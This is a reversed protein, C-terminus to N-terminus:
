LVYNKKLVSENLDAFGVGLARQDLTTSVDSLEREVHADGVGAIVSVTARRIRCEVTPQTTRNINKKVIRPCEEGLEAQRRQQHKPLM